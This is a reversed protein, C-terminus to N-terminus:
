SSATDRDQATRRIREDVEDWVGRMFEVRDGHIEVFGLLDERTVGHHRLVREREAPTITDSTDRLTALRLDVYTAVFTQRDITEVPGDPAASGDDGCAPALLLVLALLVLCRSRGSEQMRGPVLSM